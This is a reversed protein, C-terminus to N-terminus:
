DDDAENGHIFGAVLRDMAWALTHTEVAPVGMATRTDGDLGWAARARALWQTLTDLDGEDLGLRRLVPAHGLFDVLEPATLRSSPMALLARFAVFLPQARAMPVDALHYPLPGSARGAEGFVAPLLPLYAGIEPAMVVIDSPELKPNEARERLLADRLAELERLRSHCAHVRLSRDHLRQERSRGDNAILAPDLSRLSQQTRDLLRVPDSDSAAEDRFHRIDLSAELQQMSLMFHQGLRGWAALLPHGQDLFYATADDGHPDAALELLRARESRLGAWYERCPDPLYFVVPRHVALAQFVALEAPAMHSLGFVHLPDRAGVDVGGARLKAGLEALREGRHPEKLAQRLQRWLAPHFGAAEFTPRTYSWDELWDPRYAMYQIYIRALRDALQFRRLARDPGTLYVQLAPDSPADLLEHIRWRLWERRWGRPSVANEGLVQRALGDLFTTPLVIDLNAVISGAGRERALAGALWQRMGPHAAVVTQPALASAPAQTTLLHDLPKLLAELRSARFVTIGESARQKWDKTM